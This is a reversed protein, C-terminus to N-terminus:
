WKAKESAVDAALDASAAAAIKVGAYCLLGFGIAACVLIVIGIWSGNQEPEALPQRIQMAWEARAAAKRNENLQWEQHAPSMVYARVRGADDLKRVTEIEPWLRSREAKANFGTWYGETHDTMRDEM